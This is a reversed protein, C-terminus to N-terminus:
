RMPLNQSSVSGIKNRVLINQGPVEVFRWALAGLLVVFALYALTVADNGWGLAIYEVGAPGPGTHGSAFSDLASVMLAIVLMQVLYIAYSWRGLTQFM